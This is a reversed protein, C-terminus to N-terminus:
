KIIEAITNYGDIWGEVSGTSIYKWYPDSILNESSTVRDGSQLQVIKYVDSNIPYKYINLYDVSITYEKNEAERYDSTYSRPIWNLGNWYSDASESYSYVHRVTETKFTSTKSVTALDPELWGKYTEATNRGTADKQAVTKFIPKIDYTENPLITAYKTEFWAYGNFYWEGVVRNEADATYKSVPIVMDAPYDTLKIALVDPDKYGVCAETTKVIYECDAWNYNWGEFYDIQPQTHDAGLRYILPDALVPYGNSRVYNECITNTIVDYFTNYPIRRGDALWTGKPLPIYYHQLYFNKWVKIYYWLHEGASVAKQNSSETDIIGRGITFYEFNNVQSVYKRNHGNLEGNLYKQHAEDYASFRYYNPNRMDVLRTAEVQQKDETRIFNPSVYGTLDNGTSTVLTANRKNSWNNITYQSWKEASSVYSLGSVTNVPYGFGYPNGEAEQVMFYPANQQSYWRTGNYNDRFMPASSSYLVCNYYSSSYDNINSGYYHVSRTEALPQGKFEWDWVGSEKSTKPAATYSTMNMPIITWNMNYKMKYKNLTPIYLVAQVGTTVLEEFTFYIDSNEYTRPNWLYIGDDYNGLTPKYKNKDFGFYDWTLTLETDRYLTPNIADGNENVQWSTAIFTDWDPNWDSVSCSFSERGVENADYNTNDKYYICNYAYITEPYVFDIEHLDALEDLTLEGTYGITAFDHYKMRYAQPYIALDEWSSVASWDVEDLHIVKSALANYLKGSQNFSIEESKIWSAHEPSYCWLRDITMKTITIRTGFPINVDPKDSDDYDPNQGPGTVPKTYSLMIWGKPYEKLRGWGAKEEIVTYRGHDVIIALPMYRRAPGKHVTVYNAEVDVQYAIFYDQKEDEYLASHYHNIYKICGDPNLVVADMDCNLYNPDDPDLTILNDDYAGGRYYEVYLLNPAEEKSLKDYVIIPSSADIFTQIDDDAIVQENFVIRGPAYDESAYLDVDLGLDALTEANDLDELSYFLDKSGVRTNNRYYVVTKTFQILKYYINVSGKDYIEKMTADTPKSIDIDIDVMGDHYFDNPKFDNYHLIEEMSTNADWFHVPIEVYQNDIFNNNDDYYNVVINGWVTPDSDVKLPYIEDPEVTYTVDGDYNMKGAHFHYTPYTYTGGENVNGFFTETVLDFMGNAPMIYDYVLDGEEVPILNRVMRDRDWIKIYWILTRVPEQFVKVQFSRYEINKTTKVTEYIPTGDDLKGTVVQNEVTISGGWGPNFPNQVAMSGMGNPAAWLGAGVAIYTSLTAPNINPTGTYPNTAVFARIPGKPKERYEFLDYKDEAINYYEPATSNKYDYWELYNNYADLTVTVPNFAIAPAYNSYGLDEVTYGKFESYWALNNTAPSLRVKGRPNAHSGDGHDHHWLSLVTDHYLQIPEWNDGLITGKGKRWGAVIERVCEQDFNPNMANTNLNFTAHGDLSQPYPNTWIYSSAEPAHGKVAMWGYSNPSYKSTSFTNASEALIYTFASPDTGQYKSYVSSDLAGYYGLFYSFSDSQPGYSTAQIEVNDILSYAKTEMRLRGIEKPTYGLDLYPIRVSLTGPTPRQSNKAQDWYSGLGGPIRCWDGYGERIDAAYWIVKSPFMSSEPDHPEELTDYIISLEGAAVLTDFTWYKEPENLRGGGCIVPKYKDIFTNPLEDVLQFVEDEPWYTVDLQWTTSAILNEEDVEDTYYNIDITVPVPQYAIRYEPRLADPTILNEDKEYWEYPAGKAYYPVGEIPSEPYFLDYNMFEEPYVGDAFQTEDLQITTQGVLEYTNIPHLMDVGFIKRYYSITTEYIAPNEVKTYVITYPSHELIRSLTVKSEPYSYNAKYSDPKYKQIPILNGFTPVQYFDKETLTVVEQGLFNLESDASDKYYNVIVNYGTSKYQVTFVQDKINNFTIDGVDALNLITGSGFFQPQYYDVFFKEYPDFAGDIFDSGRFWITSTNFLTEDRYYNVHCCGIMHEPNVDIYDPDDMINFSNLKRGDEFFTQSVKDYLCNSPAVLDGIKDFFQVPIFDRILVDEYYIKCNKIGIGAIGGKYYGNYNCAFLYLPVNMPASNSQVLNTYTLTGYSYGARSSATIGTNASFGESANEEVVLEPTGYGAMINFTNVGTLLSEQKFKTNNVFKIYYSGQPTISGFLYADDVNVNHLPETEFVRMTNCLVTLKSMDSVTVGTNIYAHNLTWQPFSSEYNGMDNHQLFLVRHPYDIGDPDEPEKIAEYIINIADLGILAMFTVPGNYDIVGDGCYSPKFSNIDLGLDVLTTTTTFDIIRYQLANSGIWNENSIEDTYYRVQTSYYAAMYLVDYTGQIEDFLVLSTSSYGDIIGDSYYEPKYANLNLLDKLAIGGGIASEEITIVSTNITSFASALEQKYKIVISKTRVQAVPVYIIQIPQAQTLAELSVEGSYSLNEDFIYGEPRMANVNIVQSLSPNNLFMYANIVVEQVGIAVGEQSYSVTITYDKPKYYVQLVGISLLDDYTAISGGNHLVGYEYADTYYANLNVGVATVIDPAGEYTTSYKTKYVNTTIRSWNPYEGLYYEVLLMNEALPYHIDYTANIDDFSILADIDHAVLVGGDYYKEPKYADLSIFNRLTAGDIVSGEAINIIHSESLVYEHSVDNEFYYNVVVDKSRENEIKDYYVHIIDTKIFNDFNFALNFNTTARYGNPRNSNLDIIQGITSARDVQEKTFTIIINQLPNYFGETGLYYEIEKTYTIPSYNILLTQLAKLNVFNLEQGSFNTVQGANYYDPRYLNLNIGLSEFTDLGVFQSAKILVKEQGLMISGQMYYLVNLYFYDTATADTTYVEVPSKAYDSQLPVSLIFNGNKLRKQSTSGNIVVDFTLNPMDDFTLSTKALLRTLNSMTIFAEEEDDNTILFQLEINKFKEQQRVFTPQIDGDLWDHTTDIENSTMIRDHLTVGLASLDIGNIKM